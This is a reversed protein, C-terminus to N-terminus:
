EAVSYPLPGCSGVFEAGRRQPTDTLPDKEQMISSGGVQHLRDLLMGLPTLVITGLRGLDDLVKISERRGLPLVDDVEQSRQLPEAVAGKHDSASTECKQVM